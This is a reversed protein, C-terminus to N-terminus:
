QALSAAAQAQAAAAQASNFAGWGWKARFLEEEYTFPSGSRRRPTGANATGGNDTAVTQNESTQTQNQTASPSSSAPSNNASAPLGSAAAQPAVDSVSVLLGPGTGEVDDSEGEVAVVVDKFKFSNGPANVDHVVTAPAPAAEAIPAPTSASFEAPVSWSSQSQITPAASVQVPASYSVAPAATSTAPVSTRSFETNESVVRTAVPSAVVSAPTTVVVPKPEEVQFLYCVLGLLVVNLALSLALFHVTSLKLFNM